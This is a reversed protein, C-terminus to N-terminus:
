TGQTVHDFGKNRVPAVESLRCQVQYAIGLALLFEQGSIESYEACSLVPAMNDSPHCTEGKALFSDNFDLYRVLAGNHLTARDPSSKNGSSGILTIAHIIKKGADWEAFVSDIASIPPGGLAGLACGLADLTRIKLAKQSSDSLDQWKRTVVFDALEQVMTPAM